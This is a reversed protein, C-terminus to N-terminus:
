PRTHARLSALCMAHTGCVLCRLAGDAHQETGGGGGGVCVCLLLLLLLLLAVYSWVETRTAESTSVEIDLRSREDCVARYSEMLEDQIVVVFVVGMGICDDCWWVRM